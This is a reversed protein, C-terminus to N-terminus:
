QRLNYIGIFEKPDMGVTKGFDKLFRNFHNMIYDLTNIGDRNSFAVFLRIDTPNFIGKFTQMWSKYNEPTYPGSSDTWLFAGAYNSGKYNSSLVYENTYLGLADAHAFYTHGAGIKILAFSNPVFLLYFVLSAVKEQFDQKNVRNLTMSSRKFELIDGYSQMFTSTRGIGRGKETRFIITYLNSPGQSFMEYFNKYMDLIKLHLDNLVLDIDLHYGQPSISIGSIKNKIAKFNLTYWIDDWYKM